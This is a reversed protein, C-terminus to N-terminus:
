IWCTATFEKKLLHKFFQEQPSINPVVILKWGTLEKLKKNIARFNPVELQNLGIVGLGNLYDSSVTNLLLNYQKQYLLEWVKFDESTYNKYLQKTPRILVM